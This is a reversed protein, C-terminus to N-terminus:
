AYSCIPLNSVVGRPFHPAANIFFKFLISLCLHCVCPNAKQPMNLNKLSIIVDPTKRSTVFNEKGRYFNVVRRM